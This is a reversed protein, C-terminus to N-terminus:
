KAMYSKELEQQQAKLADAGHRDDAAKEDAAPRETDSAAALLLKSKLAKEDVASWVAASADLKNKTDALEANSTKLNAEATDFMRKAAENGQRTEITTGVDIHSHIAMAAAFSGFIVLTWAFAQLRSLSLRNDSGAVVSLLRVIMPRRRIALAGILWLVIPVLFFLLYGWFTPLGM